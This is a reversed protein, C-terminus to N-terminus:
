TRAIVPRQAPTRDLWATVIETFAKPVELQPVHGVGDLTVIEWDPRLYALWHAGGVPVVEDSEGHLVLVPAGIGHLLEAFRNRRILVAAVSRGAEAFAATAWPMRRRAEEMAVGAVRVEDPIRSTDAAVYDFTAEVQEAPTRLSRLHRSWRSGVIPLSPLALYRITDRAPVHVDTIPLAPDVLVLRSAVDPMRHAALIAVLGGMSNGVITAAEEFEHRILRGVLDAQDRVDASRGEPATLGFGPLDVAVVRASRALSPGVLM